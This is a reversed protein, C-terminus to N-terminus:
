LLNPPRPFCFSNSAQSLLKGQAMVHPPLQIITDAPIHISGIVVGEKPTKRFFGSPAPYHLRLTEDICGHLLRAPRLQQYTIHGLDPVLSAIEVRLRDVLGDEKALHYFLNIMTTSTTDSGAVILMRSDGQLLPLAAEQDAPSLHQFHDLLPQMMDRRATKGHQSLREDIKQSAFEGFRRSGGSGPLPLRACVRYLWPPMAYGQLQLGQGMLEIAEHVEGTELMGFSKSFVLDGMMDFGHMGFWQTVDMPSGARERIHEILLTHFRQIQTEYGRLARDSFAPSLIRRRKDHAARDRTTNTSIYPMDQGYWASKRCKSNPGLVVSMGDPDVVSLDNPGVRVYPGYQQHLRELEYHGLLNANLYVLYLKSVRALLPGPFRNLPNFFLRYVLLSSFLGLLYAASLITAEASAAVISRVSSDHRVSKAVVALGALFALGHAYRWPYAHKEGHKFYCLHSAVGGVLAIWIEHPTM